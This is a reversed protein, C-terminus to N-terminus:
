FPRSKQLRQRLIAGLWGLFLAIPIFLLTWILEGPLPILLSRPLIFLLAMLTIILTGRTRFMYGAYIVVILFFIRHLHHPGYFIQWRFGEWGFLDVIEGFYYFFTSYLLLIGLIYLQYFRYSKLATLAAECMLRATSLHDDRSQRHNREINENNLM